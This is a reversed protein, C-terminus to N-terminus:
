INKYPESIYIPTVKITTFKQQLQQTIDSVFVQEDLHSLELIDINHEKYLIWENWKIDSVLILDIGKNNLEHALVAPGSGSLIAIKKYKKNLDSVNTRFNFLKLNNKLRNTLENISLDANLVCPYTEHYDIHDNFGLRFGIQHSTGLVNNDYNTHFALVNIRHKKIIELMSKKYSAALFEENWTPMFKFPHHVLILNSNTELAKNLVATTLDIAVVVGTIKESLNFKVSFGSPDWIEAAELPYNNLLYQTIKKLQM